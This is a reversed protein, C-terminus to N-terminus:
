FITHSTNPLYMMGARQLPIKLWLNNPSLFLQVRLGNMSNLAVWTATKNSFSHQKLNTGLDLPEKRKGRWIEATGAAAGRELGDATLNGDGSGM